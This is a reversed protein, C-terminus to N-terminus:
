KGKMAELANPDVTSLDLDWDWEEQNVPYVKIGNKRWVYEIVRPRDDVAFEIRAKPVVKLIKNLIDTKIIVDDAHNGGPRMFLYDYPPGWARLWDETELACDNDRGSVLLVMYGADYLRTAWEIVEFIPKDNAVEAYFARHNKKEGPPPKMYHRRHALDAITGDIDFIVIPPHTVTGDELTDTFDILGAELAMRDIVARGVRGGARDGRMYDRQLCLVHSVEKTLDRTLINEPPLNICSSDFNAWINKRLNTDDIVVNWDFGSIIAGAIAKEVSIVIKEKYSSWKGGFLMRRLDDRNIRATNGEDEVMKRAITSKCSGPLGKMITLKAM